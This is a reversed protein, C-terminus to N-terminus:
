TIMSLNLHLCTHGTPSSTLRAVGGSWLWTTHFSANSVRRASGTGFINVCCRSPILAQANSDCCYVGHCRSGVLRTPDCNVVMVYRCLLSCCNGAPVKPQKIAVAFLEALEKQRDLEAKKKDQLSTLGRQVVADQPFCVRPWIVAGLSTLLSYSFELIAKFLSAQLSRRSQQRLSRSRPLM